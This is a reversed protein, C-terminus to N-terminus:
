ERMFGLINLIHIFLTVFSGYLAFAGFIAAQENTASGEKYLSKITQTEWATVASFVLVVLASTVLSVMGSKFFLANAIIAVLLGVTAMVLFSGWGSLDRKTTYGYLSVSGFVTATIFFAKYVEVSAGQSAFAYIMPAILLGWLGAYLWFMGHAMARSGSFMVRPSFFGLGLIGAFLVWKIPTGAIQYVLAENSAVFFSVLGTGAVALAMYNYVGLMYSRLGEDVEAGAPRAVTGDYQNRYDNM